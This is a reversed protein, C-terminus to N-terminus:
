TRANGTTARKKVMIKVAKLKVRYLDKRADGTEFSLQSAFLVRRMLRNIVPTIPVLQAEMQRKWCVRGRVKRGVCRQNRPPKKPPIHAKRSRLDPRLLKM